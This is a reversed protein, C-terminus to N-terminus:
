LAGIEATVTEALADDAKAFATLKESAYAKIKDVREMAGNVVKTDFDLKLQERELKVSALEADKEALLQDKGAIVPAYEADKEGRVQVALKDMDGQTYIKNPDAPDPLVISAQGEAFGVVKGAQFGEDYKGQLEAAIGVQGEQAKVEIEKLIETVGM